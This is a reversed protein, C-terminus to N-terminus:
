VNVFWGCVCECVAMWSISTASLVLVPHSTGMWTSAALPPKMAGKRLGASSHSKLSGKTLLMLAEPAHTRRRANGEGAIGM